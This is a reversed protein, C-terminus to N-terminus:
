DVIKVQELACLLDKKHDAQSVIFPQSIAELTGENKTGTGQTEFSFTVRETQFIVTHDPCSFDNIVPPKDKVTQMEKAFITGIWEQEFGLTIDDYNIPAPVFYQQERIEERDGHNVDGFIRPMRQMRNNRQQVATRNLNLQLAVSADEVSNKKAIAAIVYLSFIFTTM